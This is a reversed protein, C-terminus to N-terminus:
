LSVSEFNLKMTKYMYESKLFKSHVNGRIYVEIVHKIVM